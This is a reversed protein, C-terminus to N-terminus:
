LTALGRSFLTIKLYSILQEVIRWENVPTGIQLIINFNSSNINWSETIMRHEETITKVEEVSTSKQFSKHFRGKKYWSRATKITVPLGLFCSLSALVILSLHSDSSSYPLNFTTSPRKGKTTIVLWPDQHRDRSKRRGHALQNCEIFQYLFAFKAIFSGLNLVGVKQAIKKIEDSGQCFQALLCNLDQM